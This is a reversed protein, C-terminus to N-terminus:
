LLGEAWRHGAGAWWGYAKGVGRGTSDRGGQELGRGEGHVLPLRPEHSCRRDPPPDCPTESETARSVATPPSLQSSLSPLIRASLPVWPSGRVPSLGVQGAARRVQRQTRM